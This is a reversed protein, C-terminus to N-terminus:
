VLVSPQTPAKKSTIPWLALGMDYGGGEISKVPPEFTKQFAMALVTQDGNHLVHADSYGAGMGYVRDVFDWSAGGDASSHLTYNSRDHQDDGPHSWYITGDTGVPDSVLAQACTPQLRAIEPQRDAVYWVAAWSRGGDDSRAFGRRKNSLDSANKPDPIFKTGWMRSTM